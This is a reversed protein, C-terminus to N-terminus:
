AASASARRVGDEDEPKEAEVTEAERRNHMILDQSDVSPRRFAQRPNRLLQWWGVFMSSRVMLLFVFIGVCSALTLSGVARAESMGLLNSRGKLCKIKDGNNAILCAKWIFIPSDPDETKIGARSAALQQMFMVGFYVTLNAVIFAMIISRWQLALVDRVKRWAVRKRRYLTLRKKAQDSDPAAAALDTNISSQSVATSHSPGASFSFKAFKWVCYLVTVVQIIWSSSGFIFIWAFWTPLASAHNPICVNGLRYSVGTVPLSVALLILPVGVGVAISIKKFIEVRKFNIMIRLATWISRLLIWVVAGMAGAEVIAGTAACSRDTHLDHPTIDNYCFEPKTGLPIIFAIAILIFSVTLGISLYHRHSKEEPILAFTLLLFCHCVLSIISIYNAILAHWFFSDSWVWYTTPCPLCCSTASADQTFTTCLRGAVDGGRPPYFSEPIFPAVCGPSFSANNM